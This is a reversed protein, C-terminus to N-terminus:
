RHPVTNIETEWLFITHRTEVSGLFPVNLIGESSFLTGGSPIQEFLSGLNNLTLACGKNM